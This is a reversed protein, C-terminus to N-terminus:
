FQFTVGVQATVIDTRSRLVDFFVTGNERRISGERLYDARSGRLYRVRGDLLVELRRPHPNLRVHVGGGFGYSLTSDSLNTESPNNGESDLNISTNTFLYKFGILGDAYPRVAGRRPEARVLLHTLFINNSTTVDVRVEPVEPLLGVQRTESGYVVGGLDIGVLLPSQKIRVLFQGGAGYGNNRVNDRFEGRPVVTLFDVGAQFEQARADALEGFAFLCLVALLWGDARRPSLAHPTQLQSRDKNM